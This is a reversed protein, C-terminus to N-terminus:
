KLACVNHHPRDGEDSCPLTEKADRMQSPAVLVQEWLPARELGRDILHEGPDGPTKGHSPDDDGAELTMPAEDVFEEGPADKLRQSLDGVHHVEGM